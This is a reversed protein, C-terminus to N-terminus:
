IISPVSFLNWPLEDEPPEIYFVMMERTTPHPFRLEVAWLALNSSITVKGNGYKLDGFIPTGINALQVRAQHSRGTILKITLLALGESESLQRYELAALKAGETAIPVCFVENKETNKYLANKLVAHNQRPVGVTIAYYKKEFTGDQISETLRQASKSTKAFVMVGGTPRDLRHVLGLFADGPKKRSEVLYEKLLDLLNDDGTEDPCVAVNQPKLVVLLHNDEYIITIDSYHMKNM